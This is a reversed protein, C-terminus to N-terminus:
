APMLTRRHLACSVPLESSDIVASIRPLGPGVKALRELDLPVVRAGGLATDDVPDYITGLSLDEIGVLGNCSYLRGDPAVFVQFRRLCPDFEVEASQLDARGLEKTSLQQARHLSQQAIRLVESRPTGPILQFNTSNLVASQLAGVDTWLSPSGGLAVAVGKEAMSEVLSLSASLDLEASGQSRADVIITRAGNDILENLPELHTLCDVLDARLLFTYGHQCAFDVVERLFSTVSLLEQGFASVSRGYLLHLNRGETVGSTRKWWADYRSLWDLLAEGMPGRCQEPELMLSVSRFAEVLV